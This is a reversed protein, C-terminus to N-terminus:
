PARSGPRALCAPKDWTDQRVAQRMPLSSSSRGHRISFRAKLQYRYRRRDPTRLDDNTVVVHIQSVSSCVNLLVRASKSRCTYLLRGTTMVASSLLMETLNRTTLTGSCYVNTCLTCILGASTWPGDDDPKQASIRTTYVGGIGCM